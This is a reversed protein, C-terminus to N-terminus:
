NSYSSRNPLRADVLEVNIAKSFHTHPRARHSPAPAVATLELEASTRGILTLKRQFTVLESVMRCVENRLM